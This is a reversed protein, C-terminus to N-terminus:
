KYSATFFLLCGSRLFSSYLNFQTLLPDLIFKALVTKIDEPRSIKMLAFVFSGKHLDIKLPSRYILDRIILQM